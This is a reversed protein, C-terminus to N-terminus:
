PVMGVARYKDSSQVIVFTNAYQGNERVIFLHKSGDTPFKDCVTEWLEAEYINPRIMNGDRYLHRGDRTFLFVFENSEGEHNLADYVMNRVVDIDKNHARLKCLMIYYMTIVVLAYSVYACLQIM